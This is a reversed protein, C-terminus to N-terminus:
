SAAETSVKANGVPVDKVSGTKGVSLSRGLPKGEDGGTPSMDVVTAAIGEQKTQGSPLRSKEEPM